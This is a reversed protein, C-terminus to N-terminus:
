PEHDRVFRTRVASAAEAQVLAQRLETTRELVATELHESYESLKQNALFLERSKNELLEEAEARARQERQYRRRSVRDDEVTPM